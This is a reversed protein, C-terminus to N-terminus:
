PTRAVVWADVREVGAHLLVRALEDLTAGTTMVDDVLAVHRWPLPRMVAFAGRLNRAREEGLLGVQPPTARVRALHRPAVALELARGVQRAIELAQNYGRQALRARHLPVPLLVEPRAVAPARAAEALLAGLLRALELRGSFKLGLILHSLPEAYYLPALTTSFAPPTRQCRGCLHGALGADELPLGCRACAQRNWPLDRACDTCLDRDGAGPAGCLVCTAPYFLSLLAARFFM